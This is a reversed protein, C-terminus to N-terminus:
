AAGKMYGILSTYQDIISMVIPSFGFWPRAVMRSTGTQHFIGYNMDANIERIGPFSDVSLNQIMSGTEILPRSNGKRAITAPMLPLFANGFIDTGSRVNERVGRVVLSALSDMEAETLRSLSEVTKVISNVWEGSSPDYTKGEYELYLKIM